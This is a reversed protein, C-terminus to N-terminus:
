GHPKSNDLANAAAMLRTLESSIREKAVVVAVQDTIIQLVRRLPMAPVDKHLVILPDTDIPLFTLVQHMAGDISSHATAHARDYLKEFLRYAGVVLKDDSQYVTVTSPNPM